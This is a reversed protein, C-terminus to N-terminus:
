SVTEPSLELANFRFFKMRVDAVDPLLSKLTAQDHGFHTKVLEKLGHRPTESLVYSLLASDSVGHLRISPGSGKRGLALLNRTEFKLNHAVSPVTELLPKVIEWSEQEPLNPGSDHRLPVYRAWSPDNTISFGVVFQQDWDISVSGKERDPGSYGTEVDFGLLSGSDLLGQTLTELEELSQVVGLNKM